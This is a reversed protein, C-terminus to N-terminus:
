LCVLVEMLKNVIRSDTNKSYIMVSSNLCNDKDEVVLCLSNIQKEAPSEFRVFCDMAGVGFACRVVSDLDKSSFAGLFDSIVSISLSVDTKVFGNDKLFLEDVSCGEITLKQIGKSTEVLASFRRQIVDSVVPEEEMDSKSEFEETIGNPQEIIPEEKEDHVDEVDSEESDEAEFSSSEEIDVEFDSDPETVVIREEEGSEDWPLEVPEEIPSKLQEVYKSSQESYDVTNLDEEVEEQPIRYKDLLASMTISPKVQSEISCSSDIGLLEEVSFSKRSNPASKLGNGLQSVIADMCRIDEDTVKYDITGDFEFGYFKGKFCGCSKSYGCTIVSDERVVYKGCDCKCIVTKRGSSEFVKALVRLMGYPQHWGSRYKSVRMRSCMKCTDTDLASALNFDEKQMTYYSMCSNCRVVVDGNDCEKVLTLCSM